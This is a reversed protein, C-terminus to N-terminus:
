KLARITQLIEEDDWYRGGVIKYVIEGKTNLIFTTPLGSAGWNRSNEGKPDLLIPFNIATHKQFNFIADDSEGVNIALMLVGEDKLKNWARNMSPIEERCPPCWTAWFNVIVVKGLLDSRKWSKGSLDQIEMAPSTVVTALKNQIISNDSEHSTCASLSLTLLFTILSLFLKM